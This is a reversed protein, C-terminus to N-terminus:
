RAIECKSEGEVEIECEYLESDLIIEGVSPAKIYGSLPNKISVVHSRVTANVESREFSLDCDTMECNELRLGKCYCFPQTGTIKCNILTLNESYWGLYEGKIVSNIVTVNKAHWFADKTDLVSDSIYADECYQFSYKGKFSLKDIQLERGEFFFYEGEAFSDECVVKGTRWGFEPSSIDCGKLM